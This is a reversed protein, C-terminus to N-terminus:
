DIVARGDIMWPMVQENQVADAYFVNALYTEGKNSVVEWPRERLEKSALGPIVPANDDGPAKGAAAAPDENKADDGASSGCGVLGPLGLGSFGGRWRGAKIAGVM